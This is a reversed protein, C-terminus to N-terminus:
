SPRRCDSMKSASRFARRNLSSTSSGPPRHGPPPHGAEAVDRINADRGTMSREQLEGLLVEVGSGRHGVVLHGSVARVDLAQGVMERDDLLDVILGDGGPHAPHEGLTPV